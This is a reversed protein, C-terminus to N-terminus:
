ATLDDLNGFPGVAHGHRYAYWRVCFGGLRDADLEEHHGRLRGTGDDHCALGALPSGAPVTPLGQGM